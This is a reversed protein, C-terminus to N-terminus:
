DDVEKSEDALVRAIFRLARIMTELECDGGLVVEFGTADGYRGSLVHVDMDTCAADSIRFYTRGGHGSDGGMYGTTGAEVDLINASVVERGYTTIETGDGLVRSRENIEYM